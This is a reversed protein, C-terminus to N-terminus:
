AYCTYHLADAEPWEDVPQGCLKSQTAVDTVVRSTNEDLDLAGRGVNSTELAAKDVVRRWHGADGADVRRC